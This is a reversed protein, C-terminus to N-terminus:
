PDLLHFGENLHIYCCVHKCAQQESLKCIVLLYKQWLCNTKSSKTLFSFIYTKFCLFTLLHPLLTTHINRIQSYIPLHSPGQVTVLYPPWLIVSVGM